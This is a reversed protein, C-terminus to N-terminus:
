AKWMAIMYRQQWQLRTSHPWSLEFQDFFSSFGEDMVWSLCSQIVSESGNASERWYDRGADIDAIFEHIGYYEILYNARGLTHELRGAGSDIRSEPSDVLCL